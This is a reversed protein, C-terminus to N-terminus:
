VVYFIIFLLIVIAIVLTIMTCCVRNKKIQQSLVKTQRHLNSMAGQNRTVHDDLDSILEIQSDIENHIQHTVPKVRELAKALEDLAEDQRNMILQQHEEETQYSGGLAGSGYRSVENDGLNNNNM